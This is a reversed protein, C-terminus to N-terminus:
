KVPLVAGEYKEEIWQRIEDSQLVEVLAKIRDDNVSEERVAIVNAYIRAAEGDAAEVALADKEVNLGAAIAYNGNIVALDVDQLSRPIQEAALEVIELNKPNDTIDRITAQVGAEKNLSILGEQELLLLARAENTADNPVAVAANDQLDVLSKTKGAFLGFPEYHISGASVLKTKNKENFDQLYPGHQFYNADVEGSDLAPNILTYENFEVIELEVGKKALAEKAAGLVEAHPTATAGIKLTTKKGSSCAGLAFVFILALLIVISKKM